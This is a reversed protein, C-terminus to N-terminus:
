RIISVEGSLEEEIGTLLNVYEFQFVCAGQQASKENFKGNWAIQTETSEFLKGGWRDYIKLRIPQIDPGLPLFSDNIGDDNPSFASPVYINAACESTKLQFTKSFECGDITTKIKYVGSQSFTLVSDPMENEKQFLSIYESAPRLEFPLRIACITASDPIQLAFLTDIKDFVFEYNASTNAQCYGDDAVVDYEGSEYILAKSTTEGSSWEINQLPRNSTLEIMAPADCFLTDNPLSVELPPIIEVIKEFSYDVGLFWITQRLTYTGVETPCFNFQLSDEVKLQLNDGELNWEVGHANANNTSDTTLCDGLCLTDPLQFNPHPPPPFDCYESFQFEIPEPEVRGWGFDPVSATDLKISDFTVNINESKLLAQYEECGEINGDADTKSIINVFDTNGFEDFSFRSFMLLSGDDLVRIKPSYLAYGKESLIEGQKSLSSLIVPYAGSTSYALFLNGSNDFSLSAERFKFQEAFFRKSWQLEIRENFKLIVLDNYLGTSQRETSGVLYISGDPSNFIATKRNIRFFYFENIILRKEFENRSNLKFLMTKYNDNKKFYGGILYNDNKLSLIQSFYLLSFSDSVIEWGHKKKTVGSLPDLHHLGFSNNSYESLVALNDNQLTMQKFGVNMSDFRMWSGGKANFCHVASGITFFSSSDNQFLPIEESVIIARDLNREVNNFFTKYVNGKAIYNKTNLNVVMPRGTFWDFFSASYISDSNVALDLIIFNTSSGNSVQFSVQGKSQFSILLFFLFFSRKM